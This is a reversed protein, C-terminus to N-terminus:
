DKSNARILGIEDIVRLAVNPDEFASLLWERWQDEGPALKDAQSLVSVAMTEQGLRSYSAALTRMPGPGHPGGREQNRVLVDRADQYNGMLYHLLGLINLYPSRSNLPDLRLARNVFPVGGELDGTVGKFFGHYANIYANNPQIEVAQESAKLASDFNRESLYLFAETIYALGITPDLERAKRALEFSKKRDTEPDTSQRFFVGFALTYASGAFGGGFEPDMKMVNEFANRALELRDSDSPPNVLDMAQKYLQWAAKNNTFRQGFINTRSVDIDISLSLVMKRVLEVQLGHFDDSDDEFHDAWVQRGTNTEFMGATIHPGPPFERISGRLIYTAGLREGIEKPSLDSSGYPWISSVSTVDISSISKLGIAVDETLAIAIPDGAPAGSLNQFPMVAILPQGFTAPEPAPTEDPKQQWFILFLLTIITAGALWLVPNHHLPKTSGAPLADVAPKQDSDVRHFCASYGGKPISIRIPDTAGETEYYDKLRRRLRGAEVRVVTTTQADTPDEKGFVDCAIVFGKLRDGRGEITEKVVYELFKKLRYVEAFTASSLVSELANFLQRRNQEDPSIEPGCENM